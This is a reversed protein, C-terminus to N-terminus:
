RSVTGKLFAMPKCATPSDVKNQVSMVSRRIVNNELPLNGQHSPSYIDMIKVAKELTEKAKWVQGQQRYAYGLYNLNAAIIRHNEGHTKKYIKLARNLHREANEM